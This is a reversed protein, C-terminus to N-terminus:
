QGTAVVRNEFAAAVNPSPWIYPASLKVFEQLCFRAACASHYIFIIILLALVSSHRVPPQAAPKIELIVIYPEFTKVTIENKIQELYLRACATTIAGVFTKVTIENKM